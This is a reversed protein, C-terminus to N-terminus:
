KAVSSKFRHLFRCMEYGFLDYASVTCPTCQTQTTTKHGLGERLSSSDTDWSYYHGQFNLLIFGIIRFVNRLVKQIGSSSWGEYM